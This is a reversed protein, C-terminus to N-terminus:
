PALYEDNLDKLQHTGIGFIKYDLLGMKINLYICGDIM